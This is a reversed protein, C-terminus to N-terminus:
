ARAGVFRGPLDHVGRVFAECALAPWLRMWGDPHAAPDNAFLEHEAAFARPEVLKLDALATMRALSQWQARSVARFVATLAPEFWAKDRREVIRAPLLEHAAARLVARPVGDRRLEEEPLGAWARVLETDLYPDLRPLGSTQEFTGGDFAYIDLHEWRFVREMKEQPTAEWRPSSQRARALAEDALAHVSPRLWTPLTPPAGRAIAFRMMQPLSARASSWLVDLALARTKAGLGGEASALAREIALYPHGHRLLNGASRATGEFLEDGGLGTFISRAGLARARGCMAHIHASMPWLLPAGGATLDDPLSVDEPTVLSMRSSLEQAALAVYPRDASPHDVDACVLTTEVQNAVLAAVVCSDIGGTLVSAPAGIAVYRGIVRELTSVVDDFSTRTPEPTTTTVFTAAAGPVLRTRTGSPLAVIQGYPSDTSVFPAYALRGAIWEASATLTGGLTRATTALLALDSSVLWAGAARWAFAARGGCGDNDVVLADGVVRCSLKRDRSVMADAEREYVLPQSEVFLARPGERTVKAESSASARVSALIEEDGFAVLM